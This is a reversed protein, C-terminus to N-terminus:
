FEASLSLSVSNKTYEEDDLNSNVMTLGYAFGATWYQHFDKEFAIKVKYRTDKQEEGETSHENDHIRYTGSISSKLKMEYPLPCHYGLLLGGELYAEDNGDLAAKTLSGEMQLRKKRNEGHLYWEKATITHTQGDSDDGSAFNSHRLTYTGNALWNANQQFFVMGSASLNRLFTDGDLSFFGPSLYTYFTVSSGKRMAFLTMSHGMLNMEDYDLHNSNYFSYRAGAEWLDRKLFNATLDLTLVNKIDDEDVDNDSPVLLMNDDYTLTDKLKIGWWKEKAKDENWNEEASSEESSAAERVTSKDPDNQSSALANGWGTCTAAWLVALM